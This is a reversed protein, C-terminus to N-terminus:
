KHTRYFVQQRKEWDVKYAGYREQRKEKLVLEEKQQLEDDGERAQKEATDSLMPDTNVKEMRKVEDQLEKEKKLLIEMRGDIQIDEKIKQM